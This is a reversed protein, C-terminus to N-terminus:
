NFLASQGGVARRGGASRRRGSVTSRRGVASRGSIGSHPTKISNQMNQNFKAHKPNLVLNKIFNRSLETHNKSSFSLFWTIKVFFSLYKILIVGFIGLFVYVYTKRPIGLSGSGMHARKGITKRAQSHQRQTSRATRDPLPSPVFMAVTWRHVVSQRLGLSQVFFGGCLWHDM